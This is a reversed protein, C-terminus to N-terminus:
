AHTRGREPLNLDTGLHRAVPVLNEHLEALTPEDIRSFDLALDTTDDRGVVKMGSKQAALLEDLYESIDDEVDGESVCMELALRMELAERPTDDGSKHVLGELLYVIGFLTEYVQLFREDVMEEAGFEIDIDTELDVTEILESSM